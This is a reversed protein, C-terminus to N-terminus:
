FLNALTYQLIERAQTRDSPARQERVEAADVSQAGRADCLNGLHLAEARLQCRFKM